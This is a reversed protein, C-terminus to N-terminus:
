VGSLTRPSVSCFSLPGSDDRPRSLDGPFAPCPALSCTGAASAGRGCCWRRRDVALAVSWTSSASTTTVPRGVVVDYTTSQIWTPSPYVATDACLRVEVAYTGAANFQLRPPPPNLTGVDGVWTIYETSVFHTFGPGSETPVPPYWTGDNIGVVSSQADPGTVRVEFYHTSAPGPGGAAKTFTPNITLTGGPDLHPVTLTQGYAGFATGAFSFVLASALLTLLLLRGVLVGGSRRSMDMKMTSGKTSAHIQQSPKKHTDAIYRLLRLTTLM